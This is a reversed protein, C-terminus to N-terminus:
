AGLIRRKAPHMQALTRRTTEELKRDMAEERYAIHRNEEKQEAERGEWPRSQTRELDYRRGRKGHVIRGDVPSEYDPYDDQVYPAANPTRRKIIEVFQGDILRYTRKM